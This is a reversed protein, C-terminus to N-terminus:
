YNGKPCKIEKESFYEELKKLQKILEKNQLISEISGNKFSILDDNLIKFEFPIFEVMGFCRPKAGGIKIKFNQKIGTAHLLLSLESETINQFTLITEFKAGKKVAEVFRYNREPMQNKLPYFKKNKYFKRKKENNRPPFLDGIKVIEKMEKETELIKADSFNIRGGYDTTGFLRCVPCLKTIRKNKDKTKLNFKCSQHTLPYREPNKKDKKIVSLCSNSIAEAVSRVAGKISSGPIIIKGNSRFFSYYVLQPNQIFNYSGSGIFLYESIVELRLKLQGTLKEKIFKDHRIFDDKIPREKLDIFFFPKPEPPKRRSM